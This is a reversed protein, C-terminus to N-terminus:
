SPSGESNPTETKRGVFYVGCGIVHAEPKHRWLRDLVLLPRLIFRSAHSAASGLRGPLLGGVYYVAIWVLASTPGIHTGSELHEFGVRECALRAGPLTWRWYDKPDPSYGQLFPLEVHVIGGPRLLRHIEALVRFPDTVNQLTGTCFICDFSSDALPIQHIDCTVDIDPGSLGDITVIDATIRRGGAGVDAIRAGRALRRLTHAVPPDFLVTVRPLWRQIGKARSIWGV